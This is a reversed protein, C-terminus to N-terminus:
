LKRLLQIHISILVLVLQCGLVVLYILIHVFSHM